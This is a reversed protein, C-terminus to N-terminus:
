KIGMVRYGSFHMDESAGGQITEATSGNCQVYCELVNGANLQILRSIKLNVRNGTSSGVESTRAILTQQSLNLDTPTNGKYLFLEFLGAGNIGAFRVEVNIQYRGTEQPKFEDNSGIEGLTDFIQTGWTVSTTQGPSIGQDTSATVSFSTKGETGLGAQSVIFAAPNTATITGATGAGQSIVDEVRLHTNSGATTVRMVRTQLPSGSAFTLTIEQGMEHHGGSVKDRWNYNDSQIVRDNFVTFTDNGRNFSGPTGIVKSEEGTHIVDGEEFEIGYLTALGDKNYYNGVVNRAPSNYQISDVGEISFNNGYAIIREAIITNLNTLGRGLTDKIVFNTIQLTRNGTASLSAGGFDAGNYDFLFGKTGADPVVSINDYTLSQVAGFARIRGGKIDIDRITVWSGEERSMHTLFIIGANTMQIDSLSFNYCPTTWAVDGLEGTIPDVEPVNPGTEIDITRDSNTAIVESVRFDTSGIIRIIGPRIGSTTSYASTIDDAYIHHIRFHRAHEVHVLQRLSSGFINFIEFHQVGNDYNIDEYTPAPWNGAVAVGFGWYSSNAAGESSINSLHIDHIRIWKDGTGINWGVGDGLIKDCYINHINVGIVPFSDGDDKSIAYAIGNATLDGQFYVGNIELNNMASKPWILIGHGGGTFRLGGGIFVDDGGLIQVLANGSAYWQSTDTSWQLHTMNIEGTGFLTFSTYALIRGKGTIKGQVWLTKKNGGTETTDIRLVENLNLISNAPIIVNDYEDFAAVIADYDEAVGNMTAGYDKPNAWGSAVTSGTDLSIIPQFGSGTNVSITKIIDDVDHELFMQWKNNVTVPPVTLGHNGEWMTATDSTIKYAPWDYIPDGSQKKVVLRYDGDAYWEAVGNADATVSQIANGKGEDRWVDKSESTGAEYFDITFYALGPGLALVEFQAGGNSM